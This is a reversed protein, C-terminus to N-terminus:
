SLAPPAQSPQPGSPSRWILRQPQTFASLKSDLQQTQIAARALVPAIAPMSAVSAQVPTTRPADVSAVSAAVWACALPSAPVLGVLVAICLAALKGRM